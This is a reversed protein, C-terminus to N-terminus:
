TGTRSFCSLSMEKFSVLFVVGTVTADFHIKLNPPFFSAFLSLALHRSLGM